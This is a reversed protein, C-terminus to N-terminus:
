IAKDIGVFYEAFFLESEIIPFDNPLIDVVDVSTAMLSEIRRGLLSMNHALRNLRM